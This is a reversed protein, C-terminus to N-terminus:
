SEIDGRALKECDARIEEETRSYTDASTAFPGLKDRYWSFHTEPVSLSICADVEQAVDFGCHEDRWSKQVFDSDSVNDGCSLKSENYLARNEESMRGLLTESVTSPRAINKEGTSTATGSVASDNSDTCGALLAAGVLASAYLTKRNM